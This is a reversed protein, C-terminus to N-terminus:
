HKNEFIVVVFGGEFKAGDPNVEICTPFTTKYGEKDYRTIISTIKVSPFIFERSHTSTFVFPRVLFPINEIIQM